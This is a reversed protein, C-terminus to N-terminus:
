NDWEDDEAGDGQGRAEPVPASSHSKNAMINDTWSAGTQSDGAFNCKTVTGGDVKALSFLFPGDGITKVRLQEGIELETKEVEAEPLWFAVTDKPLFKDSIRTLEEKNILSKLEEISLKDTEGKAEVKFSSMLFGTNVKKTDSFNPEIENGKSDFKRRHIRSPKLYVIYWREKKGKADTIVHRSFDVLTGELLVGQGSQLVAPDWSGSVREDHVPKNQLARDHYIRSM